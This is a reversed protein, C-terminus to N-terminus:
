FAELCFYQEFQPLLKKWEIRPRHPLSTHNHCYRLCCSLTPLLNKVEMIMSIHPCVMVLVPAILGWILRFSHFPIFSQPFYLSFPDLFGFHMPIFTSSLSIFYALGIWFLMDATLLLFQAGQILQYFQLLPYNRIQKSYLSNTYMPSPSRSRGGWRRLSHHFRAM